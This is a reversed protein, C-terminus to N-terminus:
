LVDSFHPKLKKFIVAGIIFFITTISWFWLTQNYRHYFWIQNILTDRYGEVIYYMPNLKFMWQYTKPIMKYHWMIPTLWMGFQLIISIIQGLDRFFIIISSTIFSMSIVLMVMCFSYYILQIVYIGPFYGYLLYICIMFIIFFLHAFLSSIVKVLPLISIKFVVKKVLFSYELLSNTTSMLADSFFFWPILGAIFWLIFPIEEVPTVRLGVQFVFWFVLITMIPQVFAWIIGFYSGAYKMKFDNKALSWILSRNNFIDKLLNIIGKVM